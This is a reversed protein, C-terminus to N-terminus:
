TRMLCVRVRVRVRVGVGVRVRVRVRARVRVWALQEAVRVHEAVREAEDVAYLARALLHRLVDHVADLLALDALEALHVRGRGRM